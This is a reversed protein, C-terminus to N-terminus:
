IMKSLFAHWAEESIGLELAKRRSKHGGIIRVDCKLMRSLEKTLEINAKDKEPPSRLFVKVKGGKIAIAFRGSKPAVTVELRM